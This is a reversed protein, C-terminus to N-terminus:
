GKKTEDMQKSLERLYVSLRGEVLYAESWNRKKMNKKLEELAAFAEKEYGNEPKREEDVVEVEEAVELNKESKLNESSEGTKKDREEQNQEKEEPEQESNSPSKINEVKEQMKQVPAIEEKKREAFTEGYENEWAEDACEGEEFLSRFAEFVKWMDFEEKEGTRVNLLTVPNEEGRMTLYLGIGQVRARIVGVASPMIVDLLGKVGTREKMNKYAELYQEPHDWFYQSMVIELKERNQDVTRPEMMVELDTINQEEKVEKQIETVETKTVEQPIAEVVEDPMTLMIQLKAIGYGKMDERLQQGGDAFRENIAIYRSVQDPSLGYERKAFENVSQYGSEELINTEKAQRLLYGIRVFSEAAQHMAGDLSEKFQEYNEYGYNLLEMM